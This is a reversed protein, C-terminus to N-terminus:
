REVPIRVPLRGQRGQRVDENREDALIRSAIEHGAALTEERTVGLGVVGPLQTLEGIPVWRGERELEVSLQM